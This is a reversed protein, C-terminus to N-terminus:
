SFAEQSADDWILSSAPCHGHLSPLLDDGHVRALRIMGPPARINLPLRCGEHTPVHRSLTLDPDTLTEPHFEGPRSPLLTARQLLRNGRSKRLAGNAVSIARRQLMDRHAMLLSM